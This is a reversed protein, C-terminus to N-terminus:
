EARHSFKGKELFSLIQIMAQPHNMIFTHTAPIVIFDRMEKMKAREASVKGDDQGSILQSYLPNFSRNGTIVGIEANVPKLMNPVSRPDTGLEQGAPGNLWKYFRLGKLYDALESGKNPPSLMVIRSGEPLNQNQLYQRVLIGGLSHTVFHIKEPQFKECATIADPIYKEALTKVTESTSPYGANIVNYGKDSLHKELKKMSRPTRALGHLLIVCEKKPVPPPTASACASFLLPFVLCFFKLKQRM